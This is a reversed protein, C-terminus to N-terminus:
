GKLSRKLAAISKSLAEYESRLEETETPNLYSLDEAVYFLSRVEGSSAKAIDLFRAFDAATNREFGEAINSMASVAARQIQDRFAFDRNGAFEKYIALVLNRSQQWIRLEEFREAFNANM